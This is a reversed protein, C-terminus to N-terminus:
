ETVPVEIELYQNEGNEDTGTYFKFLYTSDYLVIFNFSTEVEESVKKCDNDSSTLLSAAVVVNRISDTDKVVEFGEFFACTSTRDYTVDIEYTENLVFSEPMDVSVIPLAVFQFNEQDDISCSFLTLVLTLIVSFCLKKM